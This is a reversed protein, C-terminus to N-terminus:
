LDTKALEPDMDIDEDDTSDATVTRKNVGAATRKDAGVTTSKPGKNKKQRKVKPAASSSSLKVTPITITSVAAVTRKLHRNHPLPWEGKAKKDNVWVRNEDLLKDWETHPYPVKRPCDDNIHAVKRPGALMVCLIHKCPSMDVPKAPLPPRAAAGVSSIASPTGSTTASSSQLRLKRSSPTAMPRPAGTEPDRLLAHPAWTQAIYKGTQERIGHFATKTITLFDLLKNYDELKSIGGPFQKNVLDQGATPLAQFILESLHHGMDEAGAVRIIHRVRTVFVLAPEGPKVQLQFLLSKVTHRMTDISIVKEVTAKLADWNRTEIDPCDAELVTKFEHELNSPALALDM